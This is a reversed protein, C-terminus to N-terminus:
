SIWVCSRFLSDDKFQLENMHTFELRDNCNHGIVTTFLCIMGLALTTYIMVTHRESYKFALHSELRAICSTSNIGDGSCCVFVPYSSRAQGDGRLTEPDLFPYM